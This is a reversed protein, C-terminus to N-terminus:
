LDPSRGIKKKVEQKSIVRYPADQDINIQVICDTDEIIRRKLQEVTLQSNIIHINKLSIAIKDVNQSLIHSCQDRLRYYTVTDDM